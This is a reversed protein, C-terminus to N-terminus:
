RKPVLAVFGFLKSGAFIPARQKTDCRGPLLLVSNLDSYNERVSIAFRLMAIRIQASKWWLEGRYTLVEGALAICADSEGARLLEAM